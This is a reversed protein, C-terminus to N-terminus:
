PTRRDIALFVVLPSILGLGLGTMLLAYFNNPLAPQQLANYILMSLTQTQNPLNGGAVLSAGFDLMSQCFGIIWAALIAPVALPLILRFFIVSSPMGLSAALHDGPTDHQNFHYFIVLSAWPLSTVFAMLISASAQYILDPGLLWSTLLGLVVPSAFILTAMLAILAKQRYRAMSWAIAVALPLAALSGLAANQSSHWIPHILDNM